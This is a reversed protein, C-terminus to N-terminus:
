SDADVRTGAVRDVVPVVIPVGTPVGCVGPTGTTIGGSTVRIRITLFPNM